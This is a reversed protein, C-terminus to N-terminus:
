PRMTNAPADVCRSRSTQLLDELHDILAKAQGKTTPLKPVFTKGLLKLALRVGRLYMKGADTKQVASLGGTFPQTLLSSAALYGRPCLRAALRGPGTQWEPSVDCFMQLICYVNYYNDREWGTVHRFVPLPVRNPRSGDAMLPLDTAPDLDWAIDM